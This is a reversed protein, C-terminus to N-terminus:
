GFEPCLSNDGSLKRETRLAANSAIVTVLIIRGFADLKLTHGMVEFTARGSAGRDAHLRRALGEVSHGEHDRPGEEDFHQGGANSGRLVARPGDDEERGAEKM